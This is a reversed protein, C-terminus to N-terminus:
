ASSYLECNSSAAYLRAPSHREGLTEGQKLRPDCHLATSCRAKIPTRTMNARAGKEHAPVMLQTDHNRLGGRRRSKAGEVAGRSAGYAACRSKAGEVAGCLAGFIVHRATHMSRTVGFVVGTSLHRSKTCIPREPAGM